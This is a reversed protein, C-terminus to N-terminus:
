MDVGVIPILDSACYSNPWIVEFNFDVMEVEISIVLPNFGIRQETDLLWCRDGIKIISETRM